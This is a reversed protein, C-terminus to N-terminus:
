QKPCTELYKRKHKALAERFDANGAVSGRLEVAVYADWALGEYINLIKAVRHMGAYTKLSSNLNQLAQKM